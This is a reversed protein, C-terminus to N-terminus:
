CFSLGERNKTKKRNRKIEDQEAMDIPTVPLLNGLQGNPLSNSLGADSNRDNLILDNPFRNDAFVVNNQLIGAYAPLNFVLPSGQANAVLNACQPDGKLQGASKHGNPQNSLQNINEANHRDCNM